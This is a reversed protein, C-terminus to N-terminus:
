WLTAIVFYINMIGLVPACNDCNKVTSRVLVGARVCQALWRTGGAKHKIIEWHIAGETYTLMWRLWWFDIHQYYLRDLVQSWIGMDGCTPCLALTVSMYSAATMMQGSSLGVLVLCRTTAINIPKHDAILPATSWTMMRSRPIAQFYIPWLMNCVVAAQCPLYHYRGLESQSIMKIVSGTEVGVLAMFSFGKNTETRPPSEPFFGGVETTYPLFLHFIVNNYGKVAWLESLQWCPFLQSGFINLQKNDACNFEM